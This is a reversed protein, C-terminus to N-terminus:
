KKKLQYSDVRGVVKRLKYSIHELTLKKYKSGDYGGEEKWAKKVVFLWYGNEGWLKKNKKAWYELHHIDEFGLKRAFINAGHKYYRTKHGNIKTDYYVSLWGGFCAPTKCKNTKNTISKSKSMRIRGSKKDMKDLFDAIKIMEKTNIKTM